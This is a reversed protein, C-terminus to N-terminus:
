YCQVNCRRLAKKWFILCGGGGGDANRFVQIAGSREVQGLMKKGFHFFMLGIVYGAPSSIDIKLYKEAPAMSSLAGIVSLQLPRKNRM